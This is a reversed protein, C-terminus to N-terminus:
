HTKVDGASAPTENDGIDNTNGYGLAGTSARGWCRVAGDKLLACTHEFGMAIRSVPGGVDVDGASAPTEDDGIPSLNGYGLRGHVGNGWCRVAGTDLLACTAADGAALQIVSGGVDVDGASAPTEDDGINNTNNYGLAGDSGSGWCRVKGTDLLACTHLTGAVLQVAKDGLEVDGAAAPTEDDGITNTNGYGLRGAGGSGWCRM